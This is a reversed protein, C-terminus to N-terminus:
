FVRMIYVVRMNKPRTESDLRAGVPSTVTIETYTPDTRSSHSEDWRDEEKDSSTSRGWYGNVEPDSYPISSYRDVYGHHHGPDHIGHTHSQMSDEEFILQEGDNAGRLFRNEGNLNPTRQGAWM